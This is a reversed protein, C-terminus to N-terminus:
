DLVIKKEVSGDDYVYFGIVNKQSKVDRGLVDVIKILNKTILSEDTYFPIPLSWQSWALSRDRYRVRWCYNSSPQLYEIQEDTLDDNRQTNIDFYWNEYQKWSDFILNSFDNCNDSIQWHSAGHLDEDVDIFDDAILIM